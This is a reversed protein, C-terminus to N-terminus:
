FLLRSTRLYIPAKPPAAPSLVVRVLTVAPVSEVTPEAAHGAVQDERTESPRPEDGSAPSNPSGPSCGCLPAPTSLRSSGPSVNASQGSSPLGSVKSAPPCCCKACVRGLCCARGPGQVAKTMSASADGAVSLMWAVAAVAIWTLRLYRRFATM